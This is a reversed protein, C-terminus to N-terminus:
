FDTRLKLRVSGILLVQCLNDQEGKQYVPNVSNGSVLSKQIGKEIM